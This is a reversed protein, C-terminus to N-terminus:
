LSSILTRTMPCIVPSQARVDRARLLTDFVAGADPLSYGPIPHKGQVSRAYLTGARGLEPLLPNNGGGDAARFKFQNRINKVEPSVTNDEAAEAVASLKSRNGIYTAPPHPLTQYLLTIADNNLQNQLGGPPLKTIAALADVFVNSRDDIANPQLFVDLMGKVANPDTIIPGRSILGQIDNAVHFFRSHGDAKGDSEGAALDEYRYHGDPAKPLPRSSLYALDAGQVLLTQTLDIPLKAM